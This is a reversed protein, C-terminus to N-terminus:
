PSNKFVMCCWVTSALSGHVFCRRKVPGDSGDPEGTWWICATQLHDSNWINGRIIRWAMPHKYIYIYIIIFIDVSAKGDNARAKVARCGGAKLRYNKFSGLRPDKISKTITGSFGAVCSCGAPINQDTPPLPHCRTSRTITSPNSEHPIRPMQKLTSLRIYLLDLDLATRKKKPPPNFNFYTGDNHRDSKPKQNSIRQHQAGELPLITVYRTDKAFFLSCWRRFHRSSPSIHCAPLVKSTRLSFFCGTKTQSLYLYRQNGWLCWYVLTMKLRKEKM